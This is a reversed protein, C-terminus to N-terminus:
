LTCSLLLSFFYNGNKRDENPRERGEEEEEESFLSFFRKELNAM